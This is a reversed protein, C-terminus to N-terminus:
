LSSRGPLCNWSAGLTVAELPLKHEDVAVELGGGFDSKFGQKFSCASSCFLISTAGRDSPLQMSRLVHM